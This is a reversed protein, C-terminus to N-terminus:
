KKIGWEIKEWAIEHFYFMVTKILFNTSALTVAVMINSTLLFTLIFTVITSIVRWTLSKALIRIKTTM